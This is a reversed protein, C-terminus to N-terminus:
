LSRSCELGDIKIAGEGPYGKRSANLNAGRDGDKPRNKGITGSQSPKEGCRTVRLSKGKYISTTGGGRRLGGRRWWGGGVM